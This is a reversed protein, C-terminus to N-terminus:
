YCLDKPSCCDFKIGVISSPQEQMQTVCGVFEFYDVCNEVAAAAGLGAGEFCCYCSMLHVDNADVVTAADRWLDDNPSSKNASYNLSELRSDLRAGFSDDGFTSCYCCCCSSLYDLPGVNM